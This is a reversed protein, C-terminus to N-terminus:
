KSYPSYGSSEEAKPQFGPVQDAIRSEHLVGALYDTGTEGERFKGTIVEVVGSNVSSKDYYDERYMLLIKDADQEVSGSDRLDSMMPRKDSRQEVGRNLQAVAIVPCNLEKALGKLSGTINAIERERSQGDSKVLHIHDVVVLSLPQIRNKARARACIQNIHLGATEDITIPKDKLKSAALNLSPWMNEPASKPDKLHGLHIRGVNAFAREMLQDATMELSFVFVPKDNMAANIAVQWSLVSKGMSPRGAIVVLDGPDFGLFRDDLATIGTPLGNIKSDSRFRSDIRQISSKMIHNTERILADDIGQTSGICAALGSVLAEYDADKQQMSLSYETLLNIMERKKHRDKVIGAYVKCNAVSPTSKALDTLYNLQAQGTMAQIREAVEIIDIKNGEQTISSMAAFITQHANSFFSEVSLQDSVMDFVNEDIICAGLVAQEAELSYTM